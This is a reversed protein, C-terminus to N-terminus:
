RSLYSALQAMNPPSLDSTNRGSAKLREEYKENSEMRSSEDVGRVINMENVWANSTDLKYGVNYGVDFRAARELITALIYHQHDTSRVYVKDGVEYMPKLLGGQDEPLWMLTDNSLPGALPILVYYTGESSDWSIAKVVTPSFFSAGFLAAMADDPADTVIIYCTGPNFGEPSRTM